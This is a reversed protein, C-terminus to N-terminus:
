SPHHTRPRMVWKIKILFVQIKIKRDLFHARLEVPYLILSRIQRNSTRSREPTCFAQKM